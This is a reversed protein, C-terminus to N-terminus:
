GGDQAAHRAPLVGCSHLRTFSENPEKVGIESAIAVVVVHDDPQVSNQKCRPLESSDEPGLDNWSDSRRSGRSTSGERTTV